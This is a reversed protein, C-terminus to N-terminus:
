IRIGAIGTATPYVNYGFGLDRGGYIVIPTKAAFVRYNLAFNLMIKISTNCKKLALM